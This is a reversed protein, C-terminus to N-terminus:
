AIICLYSNFYLFMEVNISLHSSSPTEWTGVGVPGMGEESHGVIVRSGRKQVIALIQESQDSSM